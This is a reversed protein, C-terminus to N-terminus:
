AGGEPAGDDLLALLDAIQTGTARGEIRGILRRDRLLVLSPVEAVGLRQALAPDDDADIRVVRLERRRTSALHAMLSEMRRGPGSTRATVFVLTPRSDATKRERTAQQQLDAM